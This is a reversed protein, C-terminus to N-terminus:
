SSRMADLLLGLAHDVAQARVSLRDGDFVMRSTTVGDPGAAAFCVTGVPNDADGGGPGAYGTTSVAYESQHRSRAGEAMAQAVQLSVVGYTQILVEDVGLLESKAEASYSVTSAHLAKSSGPVSTIAAAVLGGTCSEATSLTVGRHVAEEVVQAALPHVTEVPIPSVTDCSPVNSSEAFCHEGTGFDGANQCGCGSKGCDCSCSGIEKASETASAAQEATDEGLAHGTTLGTAAVAAAATAMLKSFM